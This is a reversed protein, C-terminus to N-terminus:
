VFFKFFYILFKHTLLFECVYSLLPVKSVGLFAVAAFPQSSSCKQLLVICCWLATLLCQLHHSFQFECNNCLRQISKIQCWLVVTQEQFQFLCWFTLMKWEIELSFNSHQDSTFSFVQVSFTSLINPFIRPM